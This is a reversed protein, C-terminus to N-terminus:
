AVKVTIERPKTAESKPLTVTLVGNSYESTVREQDVTDPLKIARSFSGTRRERRLYETEAYEVNERSDAVPPEVVPNEAQITLVGKEINVKINSPDIGPVSATIALDGGNDVVDLPIRWSGVATDSGTNFGTGFGNFPLGFSNHYGNTRRLGAFPRWTQLTM